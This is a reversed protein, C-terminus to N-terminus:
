AVRAAPAPRRRAFALVRAVTKSARRSRHSGIGALEDARDHRRAERLLDETRARAIQPHLSSTM